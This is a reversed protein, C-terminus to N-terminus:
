SFPWALWLMGAPVSEGLPLDYRSQGRREAAERLLSRMDADERSTSIAGDVDFYLDSVDAIHVLVEWKSASKNTRRGTSSRLRIGIADDRFTTREADICVCPLSSLDVRGELAHDDGDSAVKSGGRSMSCKEALSERREGERRALSRAAYLVEPSWPEHHRPRKGGVDRGVDNTRSESWLGIRVLAESAGESTLPLGMGTLATRVDLELAAGDDDRRDYGGTVRADGMALCELRRAIREDATTSIVRIRADYVSRDIDIDITSGNSSSSMSTTTPAAFKRGESAARVSPDVAIWGGNVLTVTRVVGRGRNDADGGGGGADNVNEHEDVTSADDPRRDYTASAFQCSRRRYRGGSSSDEALVRAAVIRRAIREDDNDCDDDNNKRCYDPYLYEVALDSDVLRSHRDDGVKLLNRLLGEIRNPNSSRSAVRPIDRKTLPANANVDRRNNNKNRSSPRSKNAIRSNYIEQMTRELPLVDNRLSENTMIIGREVKRILGDLNHYSSSSSSSNADFFDQWVTTIQGIDIVHRDMDFMGHENMLLVELLPPKDNRNDDDDEDYDRRSSSSYPPSRLGVVLCMNWGGDLYAEGIMPAIHLEDDTLKVIRRGYGCDRLIRSTEDNEMAVVVDRERRRDPVAPPSNADDCEYADDLGDGGGGGGDALYV